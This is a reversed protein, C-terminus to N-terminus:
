PQVFTLMWSGWYRNDDESLCEAATLDNVAQGGEALHLSYVVEPTMVFDAYGMGLEPKLGTFFHDEGGDWTVVLEISPVPQGAADQIEVQILPSTQEPNCL